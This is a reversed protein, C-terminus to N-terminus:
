SKDILRLKDFSLAIDQSRFLVLRVVKVIPFTVQYHVM